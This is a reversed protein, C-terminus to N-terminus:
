LTKIWAEIIPSIYEYGGTALHQGDTYMKTEGATYHAPNMPNLYCGDWLNLYPVGWKECLAILTEFYKRKNSHEPTYDSTTANLVGMKQAIIVGIKSGANETTVRKLLAEVAGCFTTNEFNSTYDSMDYTGFKAPTTTRADGILDADNTGGEIIIYDANDFAIESIIGASGSLGATFTAGSIGKNIWLMNNRRGIRGAWGNLGDGASSGNCISDGTFVISKGWLRNLVEMHPEITNESLNNIVGYQYFKDPYQGKVFMFSEPNQNVHEVVYNISAAVNVRCYKAGPQNIITTVTNTQADFVGVANSIRTKEANYIPMYKVVSEGFYRKYVPYSVTDGNEIPIFGSVQMYQSDYLSGDAGIYKGVITDEDEPNYYNIINPAPLLGKVEETLSELTVTGAKLQASDEKYVIYKERDGAKAQLVLETETSIEIVIDSYLVNEGTHYQMQVVENNENLTVFICKSYDSTGTIHYIEGEHVSIVAQYYWSSAIEEGTYIYMKDTKEFFFPVDVLKKEGIGESIDAATKIGQEIHNLNEANLAPPQGNVWQTPTYAM